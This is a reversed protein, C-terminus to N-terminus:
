NLWSAEDLGEPLKGSKIADYMAQTSMYIQSPRGSTKITYKAVMRAEELTELMADLNRKTLKSKRMITAKNIGTAGTNAVIDYVTSLRKDGALTQDVLDSVVAYMWREASYRAWEFAWKIDYVDIEPCAKSPYYGHADKKLNETLRSMASLLAIRATTEALRGYPEFILENDKAAAGACASGLEDITCILNLAEDTMEVEIAYDNWINDGFGSQDSCWRHLANVHAAVEEPVDSNMKGGWKQLRTARDIDPINDLEVLVFRNVHGQKLQRITMNEFLASQSTAGYITLHPYPILPAAKGVKRTGPVKDGASSYFTMLDGMLAAAHQNQTNGTNSSWFAGFEDTALLKSMSTGDPTDPQGEIGAAAEYAERIASSSTVSSGLSHRELIGVSALARTLCNKSHNKGVSSRAANIIYVNPRIGTQTKVARGSITSILALAASISFEPMARAASENVWQAFHAILGPMPFRMLDPPAPTVRPFMRVSLGRHSVVKESEMGGIDGAWAEFQLAREHSTVIPRIVTEVEGREGAVQAEVKRRVAEIEEATVNSDIEQGPARKALLGEVGGEGLDSSNIYVLYIMYERSTLATQSNEIVQVQVLRRAYDRLDVKPLNAESHFRVEPPAVHGADRVASILTGLGVTGRSDRAFQEWKQQTYEANYRESKASWEHWLQEGFGPMSKSAEYIAFGTRLWDDWSTQPTNPLREILWRLGDADAELGEYAEPSAPASSAAKREPAAGLKVALDLIKSAHENTLTPLDDVHVTDPAGGRWVYLRGTAPHIGAAVVQRGHSLIELGNRDGGEGQWAKSRSKITEDTRFILVRKPYQGVRVPAEDAGVIALIEAEARHALDPDLIDIDIAVVNGLAIGVGAEVAEWASLEDDTPATACYTQWKELPYEAGGARWGPRKQGPIIPIAHYGNDAYSRGLKAFDSM